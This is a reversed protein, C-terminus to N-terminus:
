KVEKTPCIEVLGKLDVFHKVAEAVKEKGQWEKKNMVFCIQFHGAWVWISGSSSSSIYYTDDLMRAGARVTPKDRLRIHAWALVKGNADKWRCWIFASSFTANTATKLVNPYAEGPILWFRKMAENFEPAKDTVGRKLEDIKDKFPECIKQEKVRLTKQEAELKVAKATRENPDTNRVEKIKRQLDEIRKKLDEIEATYQQIERTYEQVIEPNLENLLKEIEKIRKREKGAATEMEANIAAVQKYVKLSEAALDDVGSYVKQAAFAVVVFVFAVRITRNFMM